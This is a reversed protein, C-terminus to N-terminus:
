VGPHPRGSLIPITLMIMALSDMLCGFRFHHRHHHGHDGDSSSWVPFSLGSTRWTDPDRGSFPRLGDRLRGRCIMRSIRTTDYFVNKFGKWSLNRGILRDQHSRGSAPPKRRHSFEPLSGAWSWFLCFCPRSLAPYSKFKEGPERPAARGSTRVFALGLDSHVSCLM